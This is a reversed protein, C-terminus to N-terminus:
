FFIMVSTDSKGLFVSFDIKVDYCMINWNMFYELEIGFHLSNCCLQIVIYNHITHINVQTPTHLTATKM